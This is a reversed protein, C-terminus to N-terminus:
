FFKLIILASSTLIKDSIPDFVKGFNSTINLKRALFGDFYDSISM